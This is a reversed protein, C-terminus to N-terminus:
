RRSAHQPIHIGAKPQGALTACECKACGRRQERVTARKGKAVGKGVCAGQGGVHRGAHLVMYGQVLYPVHLPKRGQHPPLQVPGNPLPRSPLRGQLPTAPHPYATQTESRPHRAGILFPLTVLFVPWFPQALANVPRASPRHTVHRLAGRMPCVHRRVRLWASGTGGM